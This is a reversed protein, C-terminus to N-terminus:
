MQAVFAAANPVAARATPAPVFLQQTPQNFCQWVEIGTITTTPYTADMLSIAPAAMLEASATSVPLSDWLIIRGTLHGTSPDEVVARVMATVGDTPSLSVYGSLQWSRTSAGSAVHWNACVDVADIYHQAATATGRHGPNSSSARALYRGLSSRIKNCGDAPSVMHVRRVAGRVSSTMGLIHGPIDVVPSGVTVGGGRAARQLENMKVIPM